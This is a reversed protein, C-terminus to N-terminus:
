EQHAQHNGNNLSNSVALVTNGSGDTITLKMMDNKGPEGADTFTWKATAGSVGNYLGTGSGQYTDFDAAPPKPSITLDDSCFASTLNELHFNNGGGWNVELHNPGQSADCHLEFGHTVRMGNVTFVSGGGTMRGETIPPVGGVGCSAFEIEFAHARMPNYAEKSWMVHKGLASFTSTDCELDEDRFNPDGSVVTSFDFSAAKTAKDVVWVHSCGNSGEYLLQGGVALGSNYGTTFGNIICTSGGWSFSEVPAGTLDFARITTTACDNSYYIVDDTPDSIDKADFALGDDLSCAGVISDVDFVLSSGSVNKASDLDIRYVEGGGGPGGLGSGAWLANRTADYSLAGLGGNPVINYSATVVGTIPDARFLDHQNQETGYEACSYWLNAGDFAIGVGVTSPCNSSFTVSGVLDGVAAHSIQPCISFLLVGCTLLAAALLRMGKFTKDIIKKM